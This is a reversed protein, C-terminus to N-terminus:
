TVACLTGSISYRRQSLRYVAWLRVSSPLFPPSSRVIWPGFNSEATFMANADVAAFYSGIKTAILYATKSDGGLVAIRVIAIAFEVTPGCLDLLGDMGKNIIDATQM